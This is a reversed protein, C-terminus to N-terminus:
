DNSRNYTFERLLQNGQGCRERTELGIKFTEPTRPWESPADFSAFLRSIEQNPL